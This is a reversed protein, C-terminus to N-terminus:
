TFPTKVVATKVVYVVVREDVVAVPDKWPVLMERM